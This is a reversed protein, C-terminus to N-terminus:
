DKTVVRLPYVKVLRAANFGARMYIDFTIGPKVLFRESEPFQRIDTILEAEPHSQVTAIVELGDVSNVVCRVPQHAGIWSLIEAESM